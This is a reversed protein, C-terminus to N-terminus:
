GHLPEKWSLNCKHELVVFADHAYEMAKYENVGAQNILRNAIENKLQERQQATLTNDVSARLRENERMTEALQQLIQRRSMKLAVLHHGHQICNDIKELTLKNPLKSM